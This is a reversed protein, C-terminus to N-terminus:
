LESITKEQTYLYSLSLVPIFHYHNFKLEIIVTTPQMCFQLKIEPFIKTPLGSM